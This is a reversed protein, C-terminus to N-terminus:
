GAISTLQLQRSGLKRHNLETELREHLANGESSNSHPVEAVAVDDEGYKDVSYDLNQSEAM